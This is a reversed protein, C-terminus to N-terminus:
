WRIRTCSTSWWSSSTEPTTLRQICALQLWKYTTQPTHPSTPPPLHSPSPVLPLPIHSSHSTTLSPPRHLPRLTHWIHTGYGSKVWHSHWGTHLIICHIKEHWRERRCFTFFITSRIFAKWRRLLWIKAVRCFCRALLSTSLWCTLSNWGGM